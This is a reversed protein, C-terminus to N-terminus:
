PQAGAANQRTFIFLSGDHHRKPLKSNHRLNKQLNM